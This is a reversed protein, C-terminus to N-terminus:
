YNAIWKKGTNLLSTSFEWGLINEGGKSFDPLFHSFRNWIVKGTVNFSGKSFFNTLKKQFNWFTFMKAEEMKKENQIKCEKLVIFDLRLEVPCVFHISLDDKHRTGRNVQDAAVCVFSHTDSRPQFFRWWYPDSESVSPTFTCDFASFILWYVLLSALYKDYYIWRIHRRDWM